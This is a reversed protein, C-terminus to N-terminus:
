SNDVKDSWYGIAIVYVMGIVPAFVNGAFCAFLGYLIDYVLYARFMTKNKPSCRAACITVLPPLIFIALVLLFMSNLKEAAFILLIPVIIGVLLLLISVLDGSTISQSLAPAPSPTSPERAVPARGALEDLSIGFLDCMKILKDLEPVAAGNEWKSVSQRSVDLADALDGQSMNKQTRFKYINEGLNMLDGGQKTAKHYCKQALIDM